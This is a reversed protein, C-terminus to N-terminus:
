SAKYDQDLYSQYIKRAYAVDGTLVFDNPNGRYSIMGNEKHEIISRDLKENTYFVAVLIGNHLFNKKTDAHHILTKARM